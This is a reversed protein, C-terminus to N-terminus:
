AMSVGSAHVIILPVAFAEGDADDDEADAFVVVAIRFDVMLIGVGSPVSGGRVSDGALGTVAKRAAPM